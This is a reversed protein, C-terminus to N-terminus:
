LCWWESSCLFLAVAKKLPFVDLHKSIRLQFLEAEVWRHSHVLRIGLPHEM